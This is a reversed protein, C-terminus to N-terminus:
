QAPPYTCGQHSQMVLKDVRVNARQAAAVAEQYLEPALEPTRSVIYLSYGVSDTVAAYRYESDLAVIWFQGKWPLGFDVSLRAGTEDNSTAFGRIEVPEGGVQDRQCTNLVEIRGDNSPTLVQRACACKPEVIIPNASVRYWTGAYRGLDVRPVTEIGFFASAASSFGLAALLLLSNRIM